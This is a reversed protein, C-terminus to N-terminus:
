DHDRYLSERSFAEDSRLFRVLSSRLSRSRITLSAKVSSRRDPPSMPRRKSFAQPMRTLTWGHAAAQRSLEERVEPKINIIIAM